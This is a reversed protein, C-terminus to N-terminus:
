YENEASIDSYDTISQLKDIDVDDGRVRAEVDEWSLVRAVESPFVMDFGQKLSDMQIKSEGFKTSLALDVYKESNEQTIYEEEGNEILPIITGDSLEVTFNLKQISNLSTDKERLQKLSIFLKEDISKLDELKLPDCIFKKWFLPSLKFDMVHGSRFALAMLGGVFKYMDLHLLSTSAPNIVWKDQFPGNKEKNNASPVFLPLFSSFLEDIMWSFHRRYSGDNSLGENSFNAYWGYNTSDQIRLNEFNNERLKKFITGFM